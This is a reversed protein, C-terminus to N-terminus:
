DLAKSRRARHAIRTLASSIGGLMGGCVIAVWLSVVVGNQGPVLFRLGAVCTITALGLLWFPLTVWLNGLYVAICGALLLVAWMQVGMTLLYSTALLTVLLGFAGPLIRGPRNFELLILCIGISAALVAGSPDVHMPMHFLHSEM